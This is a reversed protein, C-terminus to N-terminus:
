APHTRNGGGNGINAPRPVSTAACPSTRKTHRPTSAMVADCNVSADLSTGVQTSMSLWRTDCGHRTHPACTGAEQAGFTGSASACPLKGRRAVVARARAGYAHQGRACRVRRTGHCRPVGPIYIYIYITSMAAHCGLHAHMYVSSHAGYTGYGSPLHQHMLVKWIYVYVGYVM